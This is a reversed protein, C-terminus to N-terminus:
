APSVGVAAQKSYVLLQLPVTGTHRTYVFSGFEIHEMAHSGTHLLLLAIEGSKLTLM